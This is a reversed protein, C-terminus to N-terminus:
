IERRAKQKCRGTHHGGHFDKDAKAQGGPTTEAPQKNGTNTQNVENKERVKVRDGSCLVVCCEACGTRERNKALQKLHRQENSRSFRFKRNQFHGKGPRTKL